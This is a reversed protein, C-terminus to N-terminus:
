YRYKEIIPANMAIRRMDFRRLNITHYAGDYVREAYARAAAIAHM